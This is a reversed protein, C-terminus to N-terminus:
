ILSDIKKLEPMEPVRLISKDMMECYGFPCGDTDDVWELLLNTATQTRNGVVVCAKGGNEFASVIMALEGSESHEVKSGIRRRLEALTFERFEIEEYKMRM